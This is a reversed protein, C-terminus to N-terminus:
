YLSGQVIYERTIQQSESFHMSGYLFSQWIDISQFLKHRPFPCSPTRFQVAGRFMQFSCDTMYLRGCRLSRRPSLLDWAVYADFIISFQIFLFRLCVETNHAARFASARSCFKKNPTINDRHVDRLRMSPPPVAGSMGLTPLLDSHTTLNVSWGCVRSLLM